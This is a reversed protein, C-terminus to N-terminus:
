DNTRGDIRERILDAHGNHQAYEEILHIYLWRVSIEGVREHVFTDDLDRTAIAMRSEAMEALLAAYEAEARAPDLDSFSGGSTGPKSYRGSVDEGALRRRFWVREVDTLHRILGLLTLNSPPTSAIALQEGTLGACNALFTARHRDLWAELMPREAGLLPEDTVEVEPATWTM